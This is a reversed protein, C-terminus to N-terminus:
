PNASRGAAAAAACPRLPDAPCSTPGPSRCTSLAEDTDYRLQRASVRVIRWGKEALFELREIDGAYDDPNTFHQEGDYEVGVMADPWGMDIRRVVRGWANTVPIQTVPRPLGGRILVLRLRTEQPSEAGPDVLDLTTRLRRIGRAGPYRAAVMWVDDVTCRTANAAEARTLADLAMGAPAYVNHHVKVFRPRLMQRTVAGSALAESGVILKGM